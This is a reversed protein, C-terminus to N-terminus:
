IGNKLDSYASPTTGFIEVFRKRFTSVDNYGVMEAVEQVSYKNERLLIGAKRIRVGIILEIITCNTIQKVKRYLTPQSMNMESALKKVNFEPDLINNEIINVIQRIFNDRINESNSNTLEDESASGLQVLLKTYTQRLVKRTNILNKIKAKLISPTFPKPMYDDAGIDLGRLIDEDEFESTIFIFPIHGTTVEHKISKCVDFGSIEPMTVDCLILDPIHKTAMEIGKASEDAILLNYTDSLLVKMYTQIEKRHEIILITNKNKQESDVVEESNEITTTEENSNDEATNAENSEQNVDAEEETKEPINDPEKELEEKVEILEVNDAEKFSSRMTPINLKINTIGEESKINIGGNGRKMIDEMFDYGIEMTNIDEIDTNEYLPEIKGQIKLRTNYNITITCITNEDSVEETVTLSVMGAYQIHNFANMLINKIVTKFKNRNIWVQLEPRVFKNYRFIIDNTSIIDNMENNIDDLVKEIYYAGVDNIKRGIAQRESIINIMQISCERILIANRYADNTNPFNAPLSSRQKIEKLPAIIQNLHVLMNNTFKQVVQNREELVFEKQKLAEKLIKDKEILEKDKDSLSEKLRKIKKNNVVLLAIIIIILVAYIIYSGMPSPFQLLPHANIKTDMLLLAIALLMRRKGLQIIGRKTKGRM